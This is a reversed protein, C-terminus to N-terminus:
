VLYWRGIGVIRNMLMFAIQVCVEFV